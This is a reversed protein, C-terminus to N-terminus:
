SSWASLRITGVYALRSGLTKMCEGWAMSQGGRGIKCGDDGDCFLTTCRPVRENHM